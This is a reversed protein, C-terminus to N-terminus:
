DAKKEDLYFKLSAIILEHWTINDVQMQSKVKSHLDEDIKAQILIKNQNSDKPLFDALKRKAM